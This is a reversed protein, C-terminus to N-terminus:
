KKSAKQLLKVLQGLEENGLVSPDIDAAEANVNVNTNSSESKVDVKDHWDALNKLAFIAMVHQYRGNLGNACLIREQHAKCKKIAASFEEHKSAWENLTDRHHGIKAAFGALTPLENPVDEEITVVEQKRKDYVDRTQKSTPEVAFYEIIQQCYEAKYDTPRGGPHKGKKGGAGM